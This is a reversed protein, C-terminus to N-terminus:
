RSVRLNSSIIIRVCLVNKEGVRRRHKTKTKTKTQKTSRVTASIVNASADYFVTLSRVYFGARIARNKPIRKSPHSDVTEGIPRERTRRGSVHTKEVM